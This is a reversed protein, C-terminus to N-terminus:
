CGTGWVTHLKVQLFVIYELKFSTMVTPEAGTQSTDKWFPSIQLCVPAHPSHWTFIFGSIPPINRCALSCWLDGAFVLLRPLPTFLSGRGFAGVRGLGQDWVVLRWSWSVVFGQWNLWETNPVKNRCCVLLSGQLAFHAATPRVSWVIMLPVYCLLHVHVTFVPSQM